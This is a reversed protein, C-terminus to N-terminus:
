PQEKYQRLSLLFEGFAVPDFHYRQEDLSRSPTFWYCHKRMWTKIENLVEERTTQAIAADHERNHLQAEIPAIVALKGIKFDCSPPICDEPYGHQTCERRGDFICSKCQETIRLHATM